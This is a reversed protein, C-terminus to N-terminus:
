FVGLLKRWWGFSWIKFSTPSNLHLFQTPFTPQKIQVRKIMSLALLCFVVERRDCRIQFTVRFSIVLSEYMCYEKESWRKREDWSDWNRTSTGQLDAPANCVDWCFFTFGLQKAGATYRLAAKVKSDWQRRYDTHLLLLVILEDRDSEGNLLRFSSFFSAWDTTALSLTAARPKLM